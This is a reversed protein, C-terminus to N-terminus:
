LLKLRMTGPPKLVPEMPEVQVATGLSWMIISAHNRDRQIMRATSYRRLHFSFALTSLPKDYKLKLASLDLAQLLSARPLIASYSV